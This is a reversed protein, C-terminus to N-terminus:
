SGSGGLKLGTLYQRSGTGVFARVRRGAQRERTKQDAAIRVQQELAKLESQLTKIEMEVSTRDISSIDTTAIENIDTLVDSRIQQLSASSEQLATIESQLRELHDIMLRQEMEQQMLESRVAAVRNDRRTLTNTNIILVLLVVAGFGCFM